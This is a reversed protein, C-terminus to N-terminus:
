ISYDQLIFKEVYAAAKGIIIFDEHLLGLAKNCKGCLIGRIIVKSGVNIHDTHTDKSSTFLNNCIKCKNNQEKKLKDKYEKSIGYARRLHKEEMKEPHSLSYKKQAVKVKDINQKQWISFYDKNKCKWNKTMEKRKQPNNKSWRKHQLNREEKHEKEWKKSYNKSCEKCWASLGDKKSLSRKSFFLFEKEKKCSTCTKVM